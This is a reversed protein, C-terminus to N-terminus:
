DVLLKVNEGARGKPVLAVHNYRIVLQVGDYDEGAPTKGKRDM